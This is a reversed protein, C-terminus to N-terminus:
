DYDEDRKARERALSTPTGYQYAFSGPPPVWEPPEYERTNRRWNDAAAYRMEDCFHDVCTPDTRDKTEEGSTDRDFVYNPIEVEGSYPKNTAVLDPDPAHRLCDRMIRIRPVGTEDPQFGWRVLDLGAMDGGSTARRRNDAGYVIMDGKSQKGAAILRANFLDIADPRSPDCVIRTMHYEDMFRIVWDAWWDTNRKTHYVHAVRVMRKDSDLGWVSMSGTETYGWDVSAFYRNVGLESHKCKPILHVNEDYNDWVMGEAGKWIGLVHRDREVGTYRELSKLFAAGQPTWSEGDWWKPNDRHLTVVRRMHGQIARQNQWNGPADPNTLCVFLQWPIRRTWQRIAGFFPEVQKWRVESAEEVMVIDWDTSQHKTPKDLGGLVIRSRGICYHSRNTRDGSGLVHERDQFPVIDEEFTKCFSNTLSERTKRIVLIKCGPYRICCNWLFRAFGHSKGSGRPGEILVELVKKEGTWYRLDRLLKNLEGRTSLARALSTM